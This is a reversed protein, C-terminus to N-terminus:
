VYIDLEVNLFPVPGPIMRKRFIVHCKLIDTYKENQVVEFFRIFISLIHYIVFYLPICIHPYICITNCTAWSLLDIM